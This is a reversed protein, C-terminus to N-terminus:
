ISELVALQKYTYEIDNVIFLTNEFFPEYKFPKDTQPGDGKIIAKVLQHKQHHKANIASQFIAEWRELSATYIDGNDYQYEVQWQWKYAM